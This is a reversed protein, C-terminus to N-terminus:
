LGSILDGEFEIPWYKIHWREGGILSFSLIPKGLMRDPKCPLNGFNPTGM